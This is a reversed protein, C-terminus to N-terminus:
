KSGKLIVYQELIHIRVLRKFLTSISGAKYPLYKTIDENRLGPSEGPKQKYKKVIEGLLQGEPIKANGAMISCEEQSFVISPIFLKLKLLLREQMKPVRDILQIVLAIDEENNLEPAISTEIFTKKAENHPEKFDVYFKEKETVRIVMSIYFNYLIRDLYTKFSAIKPDHKALTGELLFKQFIDQIFDDPDIKTSSKSNQYNIFSRIQPTHKKVFEEFSAPTSKLM